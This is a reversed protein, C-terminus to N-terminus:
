QSLAKRVSVALELKSFPKQIFHVGADLVGHHAIVSATYGSMFLCKMHAFRSTLHQAVEKGNMEPMIVDTILLAINGTYSESLAIAEAPSGATLVNYNLSRLIREALLLISGEDEVVLITEGNGIPIRVKEVDAEASAAEAIRPLYIKFTTGKGLESYANIFGNNQKVIGYVTALGLGTGEGVGKTTFFPEFIMELTAPDMGEGDDSVALQVFDGPAFGAHKACYAEDLTVAHTEIIIRGTDAIADRANVCLNALLQDIQVPDMKVPWLGSGPQWILDINEGILRRLMSLMNGVVENLNLVVPNITQRRAFALLQRSIKTSRMAAKHVEMIDNYLPQGADLKELALETYGIIVSLMNNYDHAVGGALRGVSEMKQAQILQNELAERKAESEKHAAEMQLTNLAYALDNTLESFLDIEEADLSIGSDLEVVLYGFNKNEFTLRSYLSQQRGHPDAMPCDVCVEGEHEAFVRGPQRGAHECCPPLKGRELINDITGLRNQQGAEAWTEPRDNQDTLIIVVFAYGHIDALLQSARRILTQVGRERVILQDVSRIARLVNNLHEIHERALVLDTIDQTFSLLCPEAELEILTASMLESRLDGSKMRFKIDLNSVAQKSLLDLLRERDGDEAWLRLDYVSRGIAESRNFGTVDEWAANIDLFTGDSVKSISIPVPSAQFITAFRADSARLSNEAHKRETIDRTTGQLMEPQGDARWLVKGQIEVPVVSGDKAFMETEFVIGSGQPGKGLEELVVAQMMDLNEKSCHDALSSGVWEEPTHGTISTVTQNVYTFKMDFSMTWIVDLTNESLLRYKRESEAIQNRYRRDETQDRFVLIGGIINGSQDRIPAGSDAIARETGDKAVLITHNALGVVGDTRLIHDFPSECPKRSVEDYIEFVHDLRHGAADAEQWATLGEAVTNMLTVRGAKDVVIVGDGISRLTVNFREKEAALAMEITRTRDFIFYVVAAFVILWVVSFAASKRTTATQVAEADALFGSAKTRAYRELAAMKSELLDAHHAGEGRIALVAENRRGAAAIEFSGDRIPKWAKMLDIAEAVLLAGEEGLINQQVLALQDFVAKEMIDIGAATAKIDVTDGFLVVKNAEYFIKIINTNARSAANSVVLPHNHITRTLGSLIRMAQLSFLGQVAYLVFLVLFGFFLLRTIKLKSLNVM